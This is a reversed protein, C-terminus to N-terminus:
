IEGDRTCHMNFIWTTSDIPPAGLNRISDDAPDLEYVIGEYATGIYIHGNPAEVMCDLQYEGPTAVRILGREPTRPDYKWIIAPPPGYTGLYVLGSSHVVGSRLMNSGAGIPGLDTTRISLFSRPPATSPMPRVGPNLVDYGSSGKATKAGKM